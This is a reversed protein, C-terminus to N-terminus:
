NGNQEMEWLFDLYYKAAWTVKNKDGTHHFLGGNEAVQTQIGEHLIKAEQILGIRACLYAIQCTAPVCYSPQNAVFDKGIYFPILNRYRLSVFKQLITAVISRYSDSSDLLGELMYALYHARQQNGWIDRWLNDKLPIHKESQKVGIWSNIRMTYICSDDRNRTALETPFVYNSERDLCTDIIWKESKEYGIMYKASEYTINAAIDLGEMCAATDFSHEGINGLGIFAGSPKQVSLLWDALRVILAPIDKHQDKYKWLTPIMYGTVEPYPKGYGEWAELGGTPLERDLVWQLTKNM